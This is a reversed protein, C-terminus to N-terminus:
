FLDHESNNSIETKPMVPRRKWYSWTVIQRLQLPVSLHCFQIYNFVMIYLVHIQSM